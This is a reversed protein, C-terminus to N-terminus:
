LSSRVESVSGASTVVPGAEELHGVLASRPRARTVARHAAGGVSLRRRDPRAGVASVRRDVAPRAIPLPRSHQQAAFSRLPEVRGTRTRIPPRCILAIGSPSLVISAHRCRSAAAGSGTVCEAGNHVLVSGSWGRYRATAQRRPAGGRPCRRVPRRPHLRRWGLRAVQRDRRASGSCGGRCGRDARPQGLRTVMLPGPQRRSPCASWTAARERLRARVATARGPLPARAM